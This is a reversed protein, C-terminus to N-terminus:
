MHNIYNIWSPRWPQYSTNLDFSDEAASDIIRILQYKIPSMQCLDGRLIQVFHTVCTESRLDPVKIFLRSVPQTRKWSSVNKLSYQFEEESNLATLYCIIQVRISISFYGVSKRDRLNKISVFAFIKGM